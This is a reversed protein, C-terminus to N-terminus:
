RLQAFVVAGGEHLELGALLDDILDAVVRNACILHVVRGRKRRVGLRDIDDQLHRQQEARADHPLNVDGPFLVQVPANRGAKLPGGDDAHFSFDGQRVARDRHNLHADLLVGAPLHPVLAVPDREARVAEAHGQELHDGVRLHPGRPLHGLHPPADPLDEARRSLDPPSDARDTLVHVYADVSRGPDLDLADRPHPGERRQGM